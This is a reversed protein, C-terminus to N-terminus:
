CVARLLIFFHNIMNAVLVLFKEIVVAFALFECQGEASVVLFYGHHFREFQHHLISIAILLPM